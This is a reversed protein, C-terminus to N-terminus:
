RDGCYLAGELSCADLEGVAVLRTRSVLNVAGRDRSTRLLLVILRQFLLAGLM